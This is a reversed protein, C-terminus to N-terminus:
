SLLKKFINTEIALLTEFMPIENSFTGLFRTKTKRIRTISPPEKKEVLEPKLTIFTKVKIFNEKFLKNDWEFGLWTYEFLNDKFLILAVILSIFLYKKAIIIKINEKNKIDINNVTELKSKSVDNLNPMKVIIFVTLEWIYSRALM